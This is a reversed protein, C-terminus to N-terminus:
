HIYQACVCLDTLSLTHTHERSNKNQKEIRPISSLNETSFQIQIRKNKKQSLTELNGLTPEFKCLESIVSIQLWARSVTFLIRFFHYFHNQVFCYNVIFSCLFTFYKVSIQSLSVIPQLFGVLVTSFLIKFGNRKMKM